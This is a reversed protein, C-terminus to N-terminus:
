EGGEEGGEAPAEEAAAEGEEGSEEVETEVRPMVAGAVLDEPNSVIEVGAGVKLDSVHIGTNTDVIVTVDVEIEHPLDKPLAEVDVTDMNHTLVAGLEKVAPADGVFVLPISATIKEDMRVNILDVHQIDDHVPGFDVEHVLVNLKEKGDVSLEIVTNGGAVRYLKRFTQYEVQFSRNEVGTGYFEMPIMGQKRLSKASLSNDREQVLLELKEM